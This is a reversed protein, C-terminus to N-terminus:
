EHRKFSVAPHKGPLTFNSPSTHSEVCVSTTATYDQIIDPGAIRPRRSRLDQVDLHDFQIQACLVSDIDLQVAVLSLGLKAGLLDRLTVHRHKVGGGGGRPCVLHPQVRRVTNNIAQEHWLQNYCLLSVWEAM